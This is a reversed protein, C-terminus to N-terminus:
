EWTVTQQGISIEQIHYSLDEADSVNEYRIALLEVQYDEGVVPTGQWAGSTGPSFDLRKQEKPLTQSVFTLDGSANVLRIVFNDADANAEWQVSIVQNAILVSSIVTTDIDDFELLDVADHSIDEHIVLFHYNGETPTSSSFDSDVPEKAYTNKAESLAELQFEPGYPTIVKAMTMPQTGWAIYSNAYKVEGDFTKKLVIVDGIVSFPEAGDDKNCSFLGTVIFFLLSLKVFNQFKIM